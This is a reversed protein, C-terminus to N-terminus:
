TEGQLRCKARKEHETYMSLRKMLEDFDVKHGDFEPGHVCTFKVEGGVTVRCGGCMGTGDVMIANLSVVTPVNYEKTLRCVFKMMIAPGIAFVRDPKKEELLEKLVDTVFGKRGRSGDDTTIYIEDSVSEMEETLILLRETRAGVISYVVNGKEKLARAIPLVPATGIGGGVCVVTGYLEIDTPKGLPGVVDLFADGEELRDFEMTSRGVVQFIIDITGEEPDGGVLTLPIREGEDHARLIIFQGPKRKRAIRPAKIRMFTVEDTLKRKKVIEYM